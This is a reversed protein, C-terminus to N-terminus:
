NLEATKRKAAQEMNKISIIMRATEAMDNGSDMSCKQIYRYAENETMHSREMLMQKAELIVAQEEPNRRPPRSRQKRREREIAEAMMQVTSLLEHVKLPMAVCVLGEQRGAEWRTRSALLLLQFHKPLNACLETYIMDPMRYGSIVIGANLSDAHNLAQAGTTCVAAVQWGNRMLINKINRGDEARPFAM